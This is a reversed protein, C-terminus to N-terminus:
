DVLGGIADMLPSFVDTDYNSENGQLVATVREFGMGTDVHKAPLLHLKGAEDRNYQIFVLNWIEMVRADGQNVLKGGSKDPTRDIHIESCPGCPGTDGMMWFNDERGFRHVHAPDIDTLETWLKFADEDPELGFERDGGFVTAHLRSKDLGWVGTLLEWAWQIAEKKYYDGFSWNGLMEFFTHHYTDRGVDELDNHKGGARICKQSDVARKYPRTGTGLFVDKFQNMGANTFLLTPDDLPVVSSSPVATHGHKKVFFDIFQQRIENAARM